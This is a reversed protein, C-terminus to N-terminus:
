LPNGHGEGPFKGSGPKSGVDGANILPNKVVSGGPFGLNSVTLQMISINVDRLWKPWLLFHCVDLNELTYAANKKPM